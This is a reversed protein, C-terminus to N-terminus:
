RVMVVSSAALRQANGDAAAVTVVYRRGAVLGPVSTLNFSHVQASGISQYVSANAQGQLALAEDIVAVLTTATSGPNIWQVITGTVGLQFSSPVSSAVPLLEWRGHAAIYYSICGSINRFQKGNAVTYTGAFLGASDDHTGTYNGTNAEGDITGSWTGSLSDDTRQGAITGINSTQCGVYTFFMAGSFAANGSPLSLYLVGLTPDEPNNAADEVYYGV